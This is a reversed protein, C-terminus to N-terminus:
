NSMKIVTIIQQYLEVLSKDKFVEPDPILRLEVEKSAPPPSSDLSISQTSKKRRTLFEQLSADILFKITVEQDPECFLNQILLKIYFEVQFTEDTEDVRSIFQKKISETDLVWRLAEISCWCIKNIMHMDLVKETVIQSIICRKITYFIEILIDIIVPKASQNETQAFFQFLLDILVIELYKEPQDKNNNKSEEELMEKLSVPISDDHTIITFGKEKSEEKLSFYLSGFACIHKFLPELGAIPIIRKLFVFTYFLEKAVEPYISDNGQTELDFIQANIQRHIQDLMDGLKKPKGAKYQEQLTSLLTLPTLADSRILFSDQDEPIKDLQLISNDNM